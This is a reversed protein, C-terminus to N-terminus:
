GRAPALNVRKLWGRVFAEDKERRAALDLYHAGQLVNVATLLTDLDEPKRALAILGGLTRSGFAGDEPQDPYLEGGRNLVNLGRQLMTVATGLGCNIATDFVESALAQGPFRDGQFRDWFERRYFAQVMDELARDQGLCSPFDPRTKLLDVRAWGEWGPHAKRAIGKWTEGGSDAPNDSYGGEIGMTAAYAQAFDAM